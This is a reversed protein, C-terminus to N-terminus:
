SVKPPPKLSLTTLSYKEKHARDQVPGGMVYQSLGVIVVNDNGFHQKLFNALRWHCGTKTWMLAMLSRTWAALVEKAIFLNPM